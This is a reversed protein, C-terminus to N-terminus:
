FKATIKVWHIPLNIIKTKGNKLRKFETVWWEAEFECDCPTLKIVKPSGYLFCGALLFIIKALSL